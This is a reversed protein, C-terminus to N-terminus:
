DGTPQAPTWVAPHGGGGVIEIDEIRLTPHYGASRLAELVKGVEEYVVQAQADEQDTEIRAEIVAQEPPTSLWGTDLDTVTVGDDHAHRAASAVEFQAEIYVAAAAKLTGYADHASRVASRMRAHHGAVGPERTLDM